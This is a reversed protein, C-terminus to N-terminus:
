LYIEMIIDSNILYMSFSTLTGRVTKNKQKEGALVGLALM